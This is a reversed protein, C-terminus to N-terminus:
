TLLIVVHKVRSIFVTWHVAQFVSASLSTTDLKADAANKVLRLRPSPPGYATRRVSRERFHYLLNKIIALIFSITTQGYPLIQVSLLGVIEEMVVRISIGDGAYM